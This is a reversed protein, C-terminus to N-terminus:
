LMQLDYCHTYSALLMDTSSAPWLAQSHGNIETTHRMINQDHNFNKSIILRLLDVGFSDNGLPRPDQLAAILNLM